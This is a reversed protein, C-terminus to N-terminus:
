RRSSPPRHIPSGRIISGPRKSPDSVGTRSQSSKKKVPPKKKASVTTATKSTAPRVFLQKFFQIARDIMGM